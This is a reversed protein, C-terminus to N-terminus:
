MVRGHKIEIGVFTAVVGLGSLCTAILAAFPDGSEAAIVLGGLIAVAGLVRFAQSCHARTM